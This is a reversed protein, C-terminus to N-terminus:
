SAPGSTPRFLGLGFHSLAGLALPGSEPEAFTVEVGSARRTQRPSERPQRPSEWSPRQREFDLWPGPLLRVDVVASLGRREAEEVLQSRVHEAWPTGRKGHRPPAFPTVSVWTRSPRAFEPVLDTVRGAGIPVVRCPRLGYGYLRPRSTIRDVAGAPLGGPAWILVSDVIRDNDERPLVLWHAHQHGVGPTGDESHGSIQPPVAEGYAKQVMSRLCDAVRVARTMAPPAPADLVLHVAEPETRRTRRRRVSSPRAEAWAPYPVRYASVPDLLGAGRVDSTRVTLGALDLPTRPALLRVTPTSAHVASGAYLPALEQTGAVAAPPSQEPLLEAECITEARGLYPLLILLERLAEREAAGFDVPWTVVLRAGRATVAFADFAKDSGEEWPSKVAVQGDPMYHRTHALTSPPVHYTPLATLGALLREVVDPDLHQGRAQWTAYLARLLRWPSPPWEVEAENVHRGWATSHM